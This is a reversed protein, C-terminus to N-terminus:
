LKTFRFSYSKIWHFSSISRFLRIIFIKDAHAQHITEANLYNKDLYACASNPRHLQQLCWVTFYPLSFSLVFIRSAHSFVNTVLIYSLTFYNPSSNKLHHLFLKKLARCNETIILIKWESSVKILLVLFLHDM